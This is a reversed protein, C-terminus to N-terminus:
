DYGKLNCLLPATKCSKPETTSNGPDIGVEQLLEFSVNSFNTNTMIMCFQSKAGEIAGTLCRLHLRYFTEDGVFNAYRRPFSKSLVSWRRM